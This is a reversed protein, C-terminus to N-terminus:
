NVLPYDAHKIINWSNITFDGHTKKTFNAFDGRNKTTKKKTTIGM